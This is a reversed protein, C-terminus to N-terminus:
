RRDRERGSLDSPANREVVEKSRPVFTVHVSSTCSPAPARDGFLCQIQFLAEQRLQGRVRDAARSGRRRSSARAGRGRRRARCGGRDTPPRPARRKVDHDHIRM